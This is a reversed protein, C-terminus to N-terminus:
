RQSRWKTYNGIVMGIVISIGGTGAIGSALKDDVYDCGYTIFLGITLAIAGAICFVVSTLILADHEKPGELM